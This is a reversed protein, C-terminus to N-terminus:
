IKLSSLLYACTSVGIILIMLGSLFWLWSRYAIALIICVFVHIVLIIGDLILGAEGAFKLILTYGVFVLLNYGVVRMDKSQKNNPQEGGAFPNDETIEEDEM